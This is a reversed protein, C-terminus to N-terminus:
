SVIDIAELLYCHVNPRSVQWEDSEALGLLMLYAAASAFMQCSSSSDSQSKM